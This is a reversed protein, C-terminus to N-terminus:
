QAPPAFSEGGRPSTAADKDELPSPWLPRFVKEVYTEVQTSDWVKMIIKVAHIIYKGNEIEGLSSVFKQSRPNWFQFELEKINKLVVQERVDTFDFDPNYPDIVNTKRILQFLPPNQQDSMSKLEYRIWSYVSEKEDQLRRINGCNFIELTTKDPNQFEPVPIQQETAKPFRKTPQFSNMIPAKVQGSADFNLNAQSLKSFYLPSYIQSFDQDLISLALEIQMYERDEKTIREVTNSSSNTFTIVGVMMFALIVTAILIEILTFGKNM